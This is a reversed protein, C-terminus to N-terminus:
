GPMSQYLVDENEIKPFTIIAVIIPRRALAKSQHFSFTLFLHWFNITNRSPISNVRSDVRRKVCSLLVRMRDFGV